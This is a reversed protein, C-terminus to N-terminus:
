EKAPVVAFGSFPNVTRGNVVADVWTAASRGDLMPNGRITIKAGPKIDSKRIGARMLTSPGEAIFGWTTVSGDENTVDILLWAHPNTYQFEKVIGSLEILKKSDFMAASHHASASIAFVAFILAVTSLVKIKM